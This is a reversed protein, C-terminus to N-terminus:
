RAPGTLAREHQLTSILALTSEAGQNLSAETAGLGDGCGGTGPDILPVGADNAGRFWAACQRVGEAWEADGTYAFARAFADALAAAEIPQQDFGPRRDGAARGGVPTMSLQGAETEMERLWTLLALGAEVQAPRDLLHGAALLVEPLAGNAYFLRAEPWPWRPDPSPRGVAAAGDALLRRAAKHAPDRVLVEAAGLAAFAMSRTSPSRHAASIEFRTLAQDRLWSDPGRHALTGLGWLARGWWDGSGPTDTWRRDFSLRNHIAGTRVQAHCLFALYNEALRHLQPTLAGERALVVLGRAVDDVCYGHERRPTAGEAHEFLGTSDSMRLLHGWAARLDASM